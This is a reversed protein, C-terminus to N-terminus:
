EPAVTIVGLLLSTNSAVPMSGVSSSELAASAPAAMRRSAPTAATNNVRAWRPM